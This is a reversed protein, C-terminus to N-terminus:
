SDKYYYKSQLTGANEWIDFHVARAVNELRDFDVAVSNWGRLIPHSDIFYGLVSGATGASLMVPVLYCTQIQPISFELSFNLYYGPKKISKYRDFNTNVVPKISITICCSSSTGISHQGPQDTRAWKFVKPKFLASKLM